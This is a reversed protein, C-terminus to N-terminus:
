SGCLIVGWENPCITYVIRFVGAARLRRECGCCPKAMAWCGDKRSVRAVWVTSGITLKRALRVEAHNSRDNTFEPAPINRSSVVVGDARLGVAGLLYTRIDNKKRIAVLAADALMKKDSPM